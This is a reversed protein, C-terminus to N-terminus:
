ENTPGEVPSAHQATRGSAKVGGTSKAKYAEVFAAFDAPTMDAARFVSIIESNELEVKKKELVPLAAQLEAIRTKTREIDDIIKQLKANM